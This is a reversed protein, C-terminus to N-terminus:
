RTSWRRLAYMLATGAGGIAVATTLLRVPRPPASPRRTWSEEPIGAGGDGDMGARLLEALHVGRRGGADSQAIQIRCSFGDALIADGPGAERVAPLLVREACAESVEYHGQEFGFNGALGCCGSDLVKADVGAAALVAQDAQFGLVAHQHCHTQVYATRAVM